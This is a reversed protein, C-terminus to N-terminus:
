KDISTRVTRFGREVNIDCFEQLSPSTDLVDHIHSEPKCRNVKSGWHRLKLFASCGLKNSFVGDVTHFVFSSLLTVKACTFQILVIFNIM